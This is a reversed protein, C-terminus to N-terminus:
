RVEAAECHILGFELSDRVLPLCVLQEKNVYNQQSTEYDCQVNVYYAYWTYFRSVRTRCCVQGLPHLVHSRILLLLGLLLRLAQRWCQRLVIQIAILSFCQTLRGIIWTPRRFNRIALLRFEPAIQCTLPFLAFYTDQVIERTKESLRRSKKLDVKPDVRSQSHWSHKLIRCCNQEIAVVAVAGVASVLSLSFM